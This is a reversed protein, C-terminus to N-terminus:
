PTRGLQSASEPAHANATKTAPTQAKPERVNSLASSLGITRLLDPLRYGQEAFAATFYKLVNTDDRTTPGGVAYAYARKVLCAPLGPHDHFAQSLGEVDSFKKGDLNGTIDIPAGRETTRFKGAGDFNELTLGIPDTVRHCGACVPSSSHAILRERVTRLNSNPDELISFDVNPPPPPVKQCLLLERVAKGRLTPSSRGPHSHAALFGIQTLLGTRPSDEPFTYPVWDGSAPLGYLVALSPSIFTERTTFLDRYDKKKVMLQDVITRLAQERADQVTVGTFDHYVAPDKALHNFADFGLMDDFFARVGGVLRPSALMKDIVRARGEPSLIEGSEAAALVMEDPGANWLFFSLRSALSYADLRESGPRASDPESVEAIFLVNPSILMGELALGLGAYFDNLEQAGRRARDLAVGLTQEDLPRRYLARGTRALFSQACKDDAAGVDKPRCGVLYDRHSPDAVKAAITAAARQYLEIQGSTVGATAAGANLLGDTRQMPPFHLDGTVDKGFLHTVTNLYQEGTILRVRSLSAADNPEAPRQAESAAGAMASM